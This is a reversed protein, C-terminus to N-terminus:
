LKDTKQSGGLTQTVLALLLLVSLLWFIKKMTREAFESQLSRGCVLAYHTEISFVLRQPRVIRCRIVSCFYRSREGVRKHLHETCDGDSLQLTRIPHLTNVSCTTRWFKAATMLALDGDVLIGEGKPLPNPQPILSCLSCGEVKRRKESRKAGEGQGEGLPLPFLFPKAGEGQGEGLPLPFM